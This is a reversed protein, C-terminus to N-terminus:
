HRSIAMLPPPFWVLRLKDIQNSVVAAILIIGGNKAMGMQPMRSGATM